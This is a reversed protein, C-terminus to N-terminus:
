SYPEVKFTTSAQIMAAGNSMTGLKLFPINGALDFQYCVTVLVIRNAAGPAFNTNGPPVLAGGADTCTPPVIVDELAYNQVNVRMKGDCDVYQPANECVKAKFAEKTMGATMAEGTRIPRSAVEIANELSFTTFFFLGVAIIGFMMILFPLGVMAFEVATAGSDNHRLQMSFRNARQHAARWVSAAKTTM